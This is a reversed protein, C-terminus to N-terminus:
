PELVPEQIYIGFKSPKTEQAPSSKRVLPLTLMRNIPIRHVKQPVYEDFQVCYVSDSHGRLYKATAIGNKWRNDLDMRVQYMRKWNNGPKTKWQGHQAM